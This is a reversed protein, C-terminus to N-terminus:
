CSHDRRTNIFNFIDRLKGLMGKAKLGKHIALLHVAIIEDVNHGANLYVVEAIDIGTIYYSLTGRHSGIDIADFLESVKGVNSSWDLGLGALARSFDEKSLVLEQGAAKAFTIFYMEVSLGKRYTNMMIDDFLFSAVHM